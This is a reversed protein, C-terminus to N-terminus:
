RIELHEFLVGNPLAVSLHQPGEGGPLGYKAWFDGAGGSVLSLYTLAEYILYGLMLGLFHIMMKKGKFGMRGARFIDRFDFYFKTNM